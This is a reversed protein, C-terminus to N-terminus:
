YLCCLLTYLGFKSEDWMGLPELLAKLEQKQAELDAPIPVFDIENGGNSNTETAAVVGVVHYFDDTGKHIEFKGIKELDKDVGGLLERETSWCEKGTQPCFKVSEDYNHPFAKVKKPPGYFKKPDVQIGVIAKAIFDASM